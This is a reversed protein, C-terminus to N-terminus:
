TSESTPCKAAAKGFTKAEYMRSDALRVLANPRDGDEPAHAAGFSVGTGPFSACAGQILVGLRLVVADYEQRDTGPLLLAFEDGGIRYAEDSARCCERLAAAVAVLLADGQEHGLADNTDKLGDVDAIVVTLAAQDRISQAVFRDMDKEFARRNALGTMVDELAMRKVRQRESELELATRRLRATRRQLLEVILSIAVGEVAFTTVRILETWSSAPSHPVILFSLGAAVSLLTTLLGATAGGVWAAITVALIYFILAMDAGEVVPLLEVRIWTMVAILVVGVFVGAVKHRGEDGLHHRVAAFRVSTPQDSNKPTKVVTQNEM